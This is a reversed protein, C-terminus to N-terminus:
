EVGKPPKPLPMWHTVAGDEWWVYQGRVWKNSISMYAEFVASGDTTLVREGVQPLRETVPIWKNEVNIDTVGNAVLHNAMLKAATHPAYEEAFGDMLCEEILEALTMTHTM